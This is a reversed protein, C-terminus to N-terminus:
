EERVRWGMSLEEVVRGGLEVCSLGVVRVRAREDMRVSMREGGGGECGRERREYM